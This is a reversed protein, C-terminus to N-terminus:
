SLMLQKKSPTVQLTQYTLGNRSSRVRQWLKVKALLYAGSLRKSEGRGPNSPPSLQFPLLSIVQPNLHFWNLLYLLLWAHLCLLVFFKNM